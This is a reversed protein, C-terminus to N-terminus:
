AAIKARLANLAEPEQLACAGAAIDRLLRLEFISNARKITTMENFALSQVLCDELFDIQAYIGAMSVDGDYIIKMLWKYLVTEQENLTITKSAQEREKGTAGGKTQKKTNSM